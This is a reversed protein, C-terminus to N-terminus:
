ASQLEGFLKIKNCYTSSSSRSSLHTTVGSVSIATIREKRGSTCVLGYIHRNSLNPRKDFRDLNLNSNFLKEARYQQGRISM